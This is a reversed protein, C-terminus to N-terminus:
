RPSDDRLMEALLLRATDWRRRVTRVSMDLLAAVEPHTLGHYWHLDVIERVERPLAAVKEHLEHWSAQTVPDDAAAARADLADLAFGARGAAPTAHNAGIGNPGFYHRALDLLERRLHEAAIALFDRTSEFTVQELARHLRLLVKNLVDDSQEWRRVGPFRRLMRRTLIQLREQSLRLLEARAAFDGDRLRNLCTQMPTVADAAM